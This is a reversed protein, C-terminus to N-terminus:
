SSRPPPRPTEVVAGDVVPLSKGPRMSMRAVGTHDRWRWVVNYGIVRRQEGIRIQDGPDHAVRAHMVRDGIRYAVNWARADNRGSDGTAAPVADVVDAYRPERVTVPTAQLVRAYPTGLAGMRWAGVSAAVILLLALAGTAIRNMGQGRWHHAICWAHTMIAKPSQVWEASIFSVNV